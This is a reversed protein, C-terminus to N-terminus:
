AKEIWSYMALGLHLQQSVELQLSTGTIQQQHYRNYLHLFNYLGAVSGIDGTFYNSQTLQTDQDIKGALQEYANLWSEIATTHNGPLYLQALVEVGEVQCARDFLTKITQTQQVTSCSEQFLDVLQLGDTALNISAMIVAEAPCRGCDQQQSILENNQSFHAMDIFLSDVAIFTASANDADIAKLASLASLFGASGMSFFRSQPHAFCYPFLSHIHAVWEVLQQKDLHPLIWFVPQHCYPQFLTENSIPLKCLMDSLRALVSETALGKAMVSAVHQGDSLQSDFDLAQSFPLNILHQPDEYPGVIM